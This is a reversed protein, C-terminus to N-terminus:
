DNERGERLILLARAEAPDKSSAFPFVSALLLGCRASYELLSAARTETGTYLLTMDDM